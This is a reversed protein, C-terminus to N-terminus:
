KTKEFIKMIFPQVNDWSLKIDKSIPTLHRNHVYANFTNASLIDNPNSVAVNIAKLQHKDM